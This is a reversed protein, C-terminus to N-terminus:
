EVKPGLENIKVIEDLTEGACLAPSVSSSKTMAVLYKERCFGVFIIGPPDASMM